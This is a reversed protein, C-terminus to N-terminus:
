KGLANVLSRHDVSGIVQRASAASVAVKNVQYQDKVALIRQLSQNLREESIRGSHVAAVLADRVAQQKSYTHCVLLMDAGAQVAQVAAEGINDQAIAGMEMDDTIVLGQYGWQERLLGTIISHSLSAPHDPDLAPVLLHGIMVMPAGANVANKFPKLERSELLSKDATIVPLAKHSDVSADGHGPFHKIVPIVGAANLGAIVQQGAAWVVAPTPGYSRDGIIPNNPNSNVDLVPAFDMNFGLAAVEDGMAKALAQASDINQGVTQATPYKTAWAVPLHAARGGEEDIGVLMPLALKPNQRYANISTVAQDLSTLNRSYLILGGPRLDSIIQQNTTMDNELLGVFLLQGVKEQLSMNAIRSDLTPKPDTGVSTGKDPPKNIPQSPAGSDSPKGTEQVPTGNDTLKGTAQCGTLM